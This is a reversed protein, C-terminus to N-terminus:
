QTRGDRPNNRIWEDMKRILVSLAEDNQQHLRYIEARTAEFGDTKEEQRSLRKEQSSAVEALTTVVNVLQGLNTEIREFRGSVEPDM